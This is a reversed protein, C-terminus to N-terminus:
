DLGGRQVADRLLAGEVTLRAAQLDEFEAMSVPAVRWGRNASAVVLQKEALRSLAERLPTASFGYSASLAAVRLPADPAYTGNLIDRRLLDFASGTKPLPPTLNGM